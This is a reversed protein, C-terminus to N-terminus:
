GKVMLERCKKCVKRCFRKDSGRYRSFFTDIDRAGFTGPLHHLSHLKQKWFGKMSQVAASMRKQEGTQAQLVVPFGGVGAGSIVM